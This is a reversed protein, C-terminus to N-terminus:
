TSTPLPLYTASIGTGEMVNTYELHESREYPTLPDLDSANM